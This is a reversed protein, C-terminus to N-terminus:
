DINCTRSFLQSCPYIKLEAQIRGVGIGIVVIL